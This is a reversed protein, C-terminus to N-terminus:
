LKSPSPPEQLVDGIVETHIYLITIICRLGSLKQAVRKIVKSRHFCLQLFMDGIIKTHIVHYNVCRLGSLKRVVVTIVKIWYSM